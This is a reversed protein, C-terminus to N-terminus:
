KKKREEKKHSIYRYVPIRCRRKARNLQFRDGAYEMLGSAMWARIRRMATERSFGLQHAIDDTSLGEISAFEDLRELETLWEEVSINKM